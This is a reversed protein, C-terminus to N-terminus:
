SFIFECILNIEGISTFNNKEELHTQEKKDSVYLTKGFFYRGLSLHREKKENKSFFFNEKFNETTEKFSSLFQLYWM